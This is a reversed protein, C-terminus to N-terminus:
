FANGEMIDKRIKFFDKKNTNFEDFDSKAPSNTARTQVIQTLFNVPPFEDKNKTLKIIPVGNIFRTVKLSVNYQKSLISNSWHASYPNKKDQM